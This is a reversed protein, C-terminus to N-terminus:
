VHNDELIRFSRPWVHLGRSWKARSLTLSPPLPCYAVEMAVKQYRVRPLTLTGSALLM